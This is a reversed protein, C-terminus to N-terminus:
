NSFISTAKQTYIANIPLLAVSDNASDRRIPHKECPCRSFAKDETLVTLGCDAEVHIKCQSMSSRGSANKSSLASAQM